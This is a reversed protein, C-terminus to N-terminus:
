RQPRAIRTVISIGYRELAHARARLVMVLRREGDTLLTRLAATLATHDNIAVLIGTVGDVVVEALLHVDRDDLGAVAEIVLDVGKEPALAGITLVVSEHAGLELESRAQKRAAIDVLPFTESDVGNSVVHSGRRILASTTLWSRRKTSRCRWSM